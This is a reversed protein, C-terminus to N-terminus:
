DDYKYEIPWDEWRAIFARLNKEAMTMSKMGSWWRLWLFRRRKHLTFWPECGRWCHFCIQWDETEHVVHDDDSVVFMSSIM